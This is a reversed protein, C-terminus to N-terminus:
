GSSESSTSPRFGTLCACGALHRVLPIDPEPEQEVGVGRAPDVYLLNQLAADRVHGALDELAIFDHLDIAHQHPSLV